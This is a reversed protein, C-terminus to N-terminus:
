DPHSGDPWQLPLHFRLFRCEQASHDPRDPANVRSASTSRHLIDCMEVYPNRGMFVYVKQQERSLLGGKTWKSSVIFNRVRYKQMPSSHAKHSAAQLVVWLEAGVEAGACGGVSAGVEAGVTGGSGVSGGVGVRTGTGVSGGASAVM